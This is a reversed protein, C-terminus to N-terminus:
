KGSNRAWDLALLGMSCTKGMGSEAPIIFLFLFFKDDNLYTLSYFHLLNFATKM